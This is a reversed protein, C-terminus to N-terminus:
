FPKGIEEFKFYDEFPDDRIVLSNSRVSASISERLSRTLTRRKESWIGSSETFLDGDDKTEFDDKTFNLIHNLAIELTTLCYGLKTNRVYPTSFEGM